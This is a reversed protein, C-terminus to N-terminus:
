RNPQSEFFVQESVQVCKLLVHKLISRNQMQGDMLEPVFRIKKVIKFLLRSKRKLSAGM